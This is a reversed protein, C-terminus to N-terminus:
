FPLEDEPPFEEDSKGRGPGSGSVRSPVPVFAVNRAVLRLEAGEKTRHTFLEGEVRLLVGERLPGDMLEAIAQALDKFAVVNLWIDQGGEEDPPVRFGFRLYANGEKSFRLDRVAKSPFGELVVRLGYRRSGNGNGNPM